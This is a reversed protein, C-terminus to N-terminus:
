QLRYTATVLFSTWIQTHFKKTHYWTNSFSMDSSTKVSMGFSLRDPFTFLGLQWIQTSCFHLAGTPSSHFGGSTSLTKHMQWREPSVLSYTTVVDSLAPDPLGSLVKLLISSCSGFQWCFTCCNTSSRSGLCPNPLHPWDRQRAVDHSRVGSSQKKHPQTLSHM